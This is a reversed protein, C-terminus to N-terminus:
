PMNTLSVQAQTGTTGATRLLTVRRTASIANIGLKFSANRDVTM